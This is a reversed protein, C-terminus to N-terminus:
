GQLRNPEHEAQDVKFGSDIQGAGRGQAVKKVQLKQAPLVKQL